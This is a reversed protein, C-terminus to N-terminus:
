IKAKPNLIRKTKLHKTKFNALICLKKDYAELYRQCQHYEEKGIFNKFKIELIIKDEIIFDIRNRKKEGEFSPPLMKEREYNFGEEKLYQEIMDCVQKENPYKGIENHTKFLIGNVKYSLDEYILKSKAKDSKDANDAVDAYNDADDTDNSSKKLDVITLQLERNGNWENIDVEFVIDIKDGKKLQECWNTDNGNCLSWGVTKHNKGSDSKLM